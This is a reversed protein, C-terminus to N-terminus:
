LLRAQAGSNIAEFEPSRHSMEMISTGRGRYDRLESQAQELVAVPLLAPGANFNLVTSM